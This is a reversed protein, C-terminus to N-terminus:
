DRAINEPDFIIDDLGVILRPLWGGALPNNALAVAIYKRGDREVLASDAHYNGWSGSKRFIKSGPRAENLGRVFKHNISSDALIAKMRASAEPSVLRGTELLYYFRAVEFSTAGHSLNHLPDRRSAPEKAYPKGVWLGGNRDADYLLYRESTLVEALYDIGVRELVQTAATNSSVKIMQRILTELEEDMVLRGNKAAQFAGLMIAIKPLSAAYIMNDNNYSAMRPRAPNTIDVLAIMLKESKCQKLLDLQDLKQNLANQLWPDDTEQLRPWNVAESHPYLPQTTQTDTSIVARADGTIVSSALVSLLVAICLFTHQRIVSIM